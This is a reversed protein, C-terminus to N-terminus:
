TFVDDDDDDDDNHVFVRDRLLHRSLIRICFSGLAGRLILEFHGTHSIITGWEYCV